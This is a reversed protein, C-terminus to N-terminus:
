AVLNPMRISETARLLSRKQSDLLRNDGPADNSDTAVQSLNAAAHAPPALPLEVSRCPAFAGDSELWHTEQM